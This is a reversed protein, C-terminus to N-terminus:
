VPQGVPFVDQHCGYSYNITIFYPSFLQFRVESHPMPIEESGYLSLIEIVGLSWHVTYWLGTRFTFDGPSSSSLDRQKTSVNHFQLLQV